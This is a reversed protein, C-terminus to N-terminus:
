PGVGGGLDMKSEAISHVDVEPNEHEDLMGEGDAFAATEFFQEGDEGTKVTIVLWEESADARQLIFGTTSDDIAEYNPDDSLFSAMAESIRSGVEIRVNVHWRERRGEVTAEVFDDRQLAAFETAGTM